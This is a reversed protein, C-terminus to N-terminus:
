TNLYGLGVPIERNTQYRNNHFNNSLMTVLTCLVKASVLIFFYFWSIRILQELFWYRVTSLYVHIIELFKHLYKLIFVIRNIRLILKM